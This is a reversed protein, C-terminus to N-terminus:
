KRRKVKMINLQEEMTDKKTDGEEKKLVKM